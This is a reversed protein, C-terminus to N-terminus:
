INFLARVMFRYCRMNPIYQPDDFIQSDNGFAWAAIAAAIGASRSIGADCHVVMTHIDKHRKVFDAIQKAQEISIGQENALDDFCWKGVAKIHENAFFRCPIDGTSYISIIVSDPINKHASYQKAENRSMIRIEKM